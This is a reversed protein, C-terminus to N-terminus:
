SFPLLACRGVDIKRGEGGQVGGQKGALYQDWKRLLKRQASSPQFVTTDLRITYLDCCSQSMLPQM